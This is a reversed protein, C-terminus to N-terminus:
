LFLSSVSRFIFFSIRNPAITSKILAPTMACVVSGAWVCLLVFFYSMVYARWCSLTWFWVRTSSGTMLLSWVLALSLLLYFSWSEPLLTIRNHCLGLCIVSDPAATIFSRFVPAACVKSTTQHYPYGSWPSFGPFCHVLLFLRWFCLAWISDPSVDPLLLIGIFRYCASFFTPPSDAAKTKVHARLIWCGSVKLHSSM